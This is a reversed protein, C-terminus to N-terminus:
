PSTTSQSIWPADQQRMNRMMNGKVLALLASHDTLLVAKCGLLYPRFCRVAWTAAAGEKDTIGYNVDHENLAKSVYMIPREVGDIVQFLGAGKAMDSCDSAVIFPKTFDPYALV